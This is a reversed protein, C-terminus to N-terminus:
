KNGTFLPKVNKWFKKSDKLILPNLNNYYKKKEKRLLSVCFNRYKKYAEINEITPFKHSKNKLRARNKFAKSLTHNMFPANNGRVVKKKLPAHSNWVSLFTKQFDEISVSGLLELQNKLDKMFTDGNFNKVDRYEMTIPDNKKFYRKM